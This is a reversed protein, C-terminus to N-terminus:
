SNFKVINWMNEIYAARDNKYKLYYAHEWVDFLIIPSMGYALPTDQNQTNIIRLGGPMPDGPRVTVLYTWGSGFVNKANDSFIKKFNDFSGFYKDIAGSLKGTPLNQGDPPAIKDFYLSHNYVGGANRNVAVPLVSPRMLLERLTKNQLRPSNKLAANLNDVYAKFHKDHHIHVTEADIYPELADYSYALPPLEFPYKQNLMQIKEKM